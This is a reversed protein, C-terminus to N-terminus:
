FYGRQQAENFYKMWNKPYYWLELKKFHDYDIDDMRGENKILWRDRVKWLLGMTQPRGGGPSIGKSDSKFEVTWQQGVICIIQSLMSDVASADHGFFDVYTAVLRHHNPQWISIKELAFEQMTM